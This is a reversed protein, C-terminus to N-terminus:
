KLFTVAKYPTRYDRNSIIIGTTSNSAHIIKGDGIYMAVHNIYDGSAYFILDGPEADAFNISKGNAAQDRSSRGTTIGFKKYIQQTFGSCDTGNILDSGGFVYPNGLFQKAYAVIATRTASVVKGVEDNSVETVSKEEKTKDFDSGPGTKSTDTYEEIKTLEDKKVTEEEQKSYEKYTGVDIIPNPVITIDTISLSPQENIVSQLDNYASAAEDEREKQEKEKRLAEKTSIAQKFEVTVYCYEKSIYGTLSADVEIKYFGPEEGKVVYKEGSSLTTLIESDTNPESRLNLNTADVTVFKNGISEALAEAEEGTIFYESKIYGTVQGSQIKYWIGDEKNITELIEAASNNYIKGVVSSDVSAESRINVYGSVKSVALKSCDNETAVITERTPDSYISAYTPITTIFTCLCLCLLLKKKFM